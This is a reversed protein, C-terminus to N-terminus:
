TEARHRVGSEVQLVGTLYKRCNQKITHIISMKLFVGGQKQDPLQIILSIPSGYRDTPYLAIAPQWNALRIM